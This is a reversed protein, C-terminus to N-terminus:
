AIRHFQDYLEEAIELLKGRTNLAPNELVMDHCRELIAGVERGPGIGLHAMIDHGDVALDSLKFISASERLKSIWRKMELYRRMAARPPMGTLLDARHLELLDDMHREGVKRFLRRLAADNGIDLHAIEMHHKILHVVLATVANPYRLHSLMRGALRASFEDHGYFHVSGKFATQTYPKGVDHLLAALRLELRPSIRCATLLNHRFVDTRGMHYPQVVNVGVVLEPMVYKLLGTNYLDNFGRLPARSALLIRNVEERIREVSINSLLQHHEFISNCTIEEISFPHERRGLVAAFRVARLMRLADERFRAGPDGVTRIIGRGLDGIGNFYDRIRGEFPSYALANITFDRRSLDEKLSGSYVVSDPRRMDSYRGELRYTTVEVPQGQSIVTITGFAKGTPVARRFLREVEDPLADTAVDFDKAPQNLLIDRLAGGVVYSQYGGDHLAHCVDLVYDPLQLRKNEDIMMM